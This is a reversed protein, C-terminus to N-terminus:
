KGEKEKKKIEQWLKHAEEKTKAKKNGFVHPNRRLIKSRLQELVQQTTFLGQKEALNCLTIWDWLVDGLEEKLNQWDKKQVAEKVEIAESLLEEKHSDITYTSVVPCKQQVEHILSSLEDFLHKHKKM